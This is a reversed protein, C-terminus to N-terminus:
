CCCVKFMLNFFQYIISDSTISEMFWHSLHGLCWRPFWPQLAHTSLELRLILSHSSSLILWKAEFWCSACELVDTCVYMCVCVYLTAAAPQLNILCDFIWPLSQWDIKFFCHAYFFLLFVAGVFYHCRLPFLFRTFFSWSKVTSHNIEYIHQQSDTPFVCRCIRWVSSESKVETHTVCLGFM